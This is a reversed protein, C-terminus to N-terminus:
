RVLQPASESKKQDHLQCVTLQDASAAASSPKARFLHNPNAFQQRLKSQGDRLFASKFGTDSEARRLPVNPKLDAKAPALMESNLGFAMRLDTEDAAFNELGTDSPKERMDFALVDVVNPNKDIVRPQHERRQRRRRNIAHEDQKGVRPWLPAM